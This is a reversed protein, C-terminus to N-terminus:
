ASFYLLPVITRIRSLYARIINNNGNDIYLLGIMEGTKNYYELIKARQENKRHILL